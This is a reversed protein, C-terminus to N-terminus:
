TMIRAFADFLDMGSDLILQSPGWLRPNAEIMYFEDGNLRVEVMVLGHFGISSFLGAFQKAISEYQYSGSKALIISGGNSQQILNEQSYVRYNGERFFYYLLYISRGEVFEQFYYEELSLDCLYRDAQDENSIIAPRDLMGTRNRYHRPKIVYPYFRPPDDFEHPTSIGHTACLKGFSHKDSILNYIQESCLGYEINSSRLTVHNKLLFRNLYETSPLIFIREKNSIQRVTTSFALLDELTLKDKERSLIVNKSYDTLFIRDDSGNAVIYIDLDVGKAFGCFSLVARENHGSFIVIATDIKM